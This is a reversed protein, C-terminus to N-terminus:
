NLRGLLSILGDASDLQDGAPDTGEKRALGSGAFYGGAGAGSIGM